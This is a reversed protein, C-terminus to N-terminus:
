ADRMSTAREWKSVTGTVQCCYRGFVLIDDSQAYIFTTNPASVYWRKTRRSQSIQMTLTGAESLRYSAATSM